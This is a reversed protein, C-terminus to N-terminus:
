VRTIESYGEEPFSLVPEKWREAGAWSVACPGLAQGGLGKALPWAHSPAPCLLPRLPAAPVPFAWPQQCLPGLVVVQFFCFCANPLILPKVLFDPVLEAVSECGQIGPWLTWVAVPGLLTWPVFKLVPLVPPGHQWLDGKVSSLTVPSSAQGLTLRGSPPLTFTLRRTARTQNIVRRHGASPLNESSNGGRM